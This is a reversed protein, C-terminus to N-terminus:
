PGSWTCAATSVLWKDPLYGTTYPCKGTVGRYKGTGGLIAQSGSGGGAVEVDGASRKALVYLEDGSSDTLTCPAELDIASKSKKAYVVCLLNYHTGEAFPGGSSDVIMATGRLPGATVTRGAHKMATYDHVASELLRFSGSGGALATQAGSVFLLAAALCAFTKMEVM